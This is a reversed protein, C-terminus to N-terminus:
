FTFPSQGKKVEKTMGACAPIWNWRGGSLVSIWNGRGGFTPFPNQGKESREDNGRVRSWFSCLSNLFVMMSSRLLDYPSDLERERRLSGFDLERERLSLTLTLPYM